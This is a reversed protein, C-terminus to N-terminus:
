VTLIFGTHVRYKCMICVTPMKDLIKKKGDSFLMSPCLIEHVPPLSLAKHQPQAVVM